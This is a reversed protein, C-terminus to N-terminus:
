YDKVLLQRGEYQVRWCLTGRSRITRRAFLPRPNQSPRGDKDVIEFEIPSDNAKWAPGDTGNEVWIEAPIMEMMRKGNKWYISTDYGLLKEDLSSFLVVLQIFFIPRISKGTMLPVYVFRRNNQHIFIERAYVSVQDKAVATFPEKLKIAVPIAVEDYSNYSPSGQDGIPRNWLHKHRPFNQFPPKRMRTLPIQGPGTAAQSVNGFAKVINSLVDAIPDCLKPELHAKKPIGAWRSDKYGSNPTALWDEARKALDPYAVNIKRKLGEAFRIAEIMEFRAESDPSSPTYPLATDSGSAETTATASTAHPLLPSFSGAESPSESSDNDSNHRSM